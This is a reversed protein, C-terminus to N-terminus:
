FIYFWIKLLSDKKKKKSLHSDDQEKFQFQHM